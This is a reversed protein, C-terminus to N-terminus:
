RSIVQVSTLKDLSFTRYDQKDLDFVKVYTPKVGNPEIRAKRAEGKYTAEIVMGAVLKIM